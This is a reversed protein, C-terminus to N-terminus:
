ISNETSCELNGDVSIASPYLYHHLCIQSPTFPARGSVSVGKEWSPLKQKLAGVCYKNFHFGLEFTAESSLIHSYTHTRAYKETHPITRTYKETHALVSASRLFSELGPCQGKHVAHPHTSGKPMLFVSELTTNLLLLLAEDSM